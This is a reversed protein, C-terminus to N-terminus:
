TLKVQPKYRVFNSNASPQFLTTSSSPPRNGAGRISPRVVKTWTDSDSDLHRQAIDYVDHCKPKVVEAGDPPERKFLFTKNTGPSPPHQRIAKGPSQCPSNRIEFKPSDSCIHVIVDTQTGSECSRPRPPRRGDTPTALYRNMERKEDDSQNLAIIEENLNDLSAQRSKRGIPFSMIKGPSVCSAIEGVIQELHQQHTLSAITSRSPSHHRDRLNGIRRLERLAHGEDTLLKVSPKANCNECSDLDCDMGDTQSEGDSRSPLSNRIDKPWQGQLYSQVPSVGRSSSPSHRSGFSDNSRTRQLPAPSPSRRSLANLIAQDSRMKPKSRLDSQVSDMVQKQIPYIPYAKM